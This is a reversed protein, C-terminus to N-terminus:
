PSRLAFREVRAARLDARSCRGARLEDALAALAASPEGRPGLDVWYDPRTRRLLAVVGGARLLELESPRLVLGGLDVLPRDCYYGLAGIEPAAIRASPPTNERAWRCV